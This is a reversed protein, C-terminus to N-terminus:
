LGFFALGIYDEFNDKYPELLQLNQEPINTPLAIEVPSTDGNSLKSLDFNTLTQGAAAFVQKKVWNYEDLSFNNSNLAEVQSKKADLVIKIIDSYAGILKPIDKISQLGSDDKAKLSTYKEDLINIEESLADKMTKQVTMYREVQAASLVNDNPITFNTKNSINNDLKSIEELQQVNATVNEIGARIPRYVFIYGAIGGAISLVVIVGLCGILFKKM